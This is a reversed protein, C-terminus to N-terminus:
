RESVASSSCRKAGRSSRQRSTGHIRSAGARYSFPAPESADPNMLYRTGYRRRRLGASALGQQYGMRGFKAVTGSNSWLVASVNECDPQAFFNSRITRSGTHTEIPTTIIDLTGDERRAGTTRLGFLLDALAIDSFHLGDDTLFSQLAFVLPLGAVHPREWYRWRLKSELRRSLLVPLEERQYPLRDADGEPAARKADPSPNATTAEIAWRVGRAELLLDPQPHSQDIDFGLSDFAAFLYLEWTRADFGGTQFQQVFDGDHDGMRDFVQQM